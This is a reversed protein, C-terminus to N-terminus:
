WRGIDESEIYEFFQYWLEVYRQDTPPARLPFLGGQGNEKYTRWVFRYLISDIREENVGGADYEESLGLNELFRNFWFIESCGTQFEADRTLAILVEFVSVGIEQHYREFEEHSLGLANRFEVRLDQADAARNADGPIIWVFEYRHMLRFLSWYTQRQKYPETIKACLWIFYDEEYEASM